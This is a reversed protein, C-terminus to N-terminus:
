KERLPKKQEPNVILESAFPMSIALQNPKLHTLKIENVELNHSNSLQELQNCYTTSVVSFLVFFYILKTM